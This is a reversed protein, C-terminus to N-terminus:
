SRATRGAPRASPSRARRCARPAGQPNMQGREILSLYSPLREVGRLDARVLVDAVQAAHEGAMGRSVFLRAAFATLESAEIVGDDPGHAQAMHSKGVAHGAM